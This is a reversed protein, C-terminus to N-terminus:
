YDYDILVFNKFLAALGVNTTPTALIEKLKLAQKSSSEM